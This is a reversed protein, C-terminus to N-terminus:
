NPLDQIFFDGNELWFLGNESASQVMIFVSISIQVLTYILKLDEELIQNGGKHNFLDILPYFLRRFNAFM